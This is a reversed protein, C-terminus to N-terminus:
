GFSIDGVRRFVNGLDYFPVLRWRRSLPYRLEFNFIVLADGGIPVLTPLENSNRPELVGQPGADEFKFGRLTTSGGAFFRESIPLRREPESIVGDHDRDVIRFLQGLGFRASIAITSGGLSEPTYYRQHNAFFKNFSENGGLEHAALWYDASYLRGRTPALANDRSDHSFGASFMGLRIARENRTVEIEPINELNFLKANEFIYRFRFATRESLKRETQVFAVVRNIGFTPTSPGLAEDILGRRRFPRLRDFRNYFASFTTPWKKGWPRWDTLQVQALQDDLSGRLKVSGSILRGFLNNDTLQIEARPGHATSYGLGYFMLLPEAETVRVSVARATEDAGPVQQARVGVERFAGTAYLARETKRLEKPTLPDGEKFDLFRMVSGERTITRGLTEICCAVARAGESVEYILRACARPCVRLDAGVDSEDVSVSVRADLHGRENYFEKIQRAGLRAREDSFFDGRKISSLAIIQPSEITVNGRVVVDTVISRPGKDVNFTVTVGDHGPTVALRPEVRASRYGLDALRDRITDSDDRLRDNSTVGRAFEGLLPFKGFFDVFASRKKTRLGHIVERENLESAGVIRIDKIEHRAGLRVDYIVRLQNLSPAKCDIPECRASVEAFIYGKEQLYNALRAAGLRLQSRSMSERAVPMFERLRDASIEVENPPVMNVRLNGPPLTRRPLGLGGGGALPPISGAGLAFSKRGRFEFVFDSQGTGQLELDGSQLYTGLISYRNSFNYEVTGIQDQESSLNTSYIFTLGRALQRGITLRAAPNKFPRLVPDIQFRNLGLFRQTERGLPKSIFQDALLAGAATFGARTQDAGAILGGETSGTTILSIIESRSLIPESSLSLELSNIPGSLAVHVRYSRINSEAQLQLRPEAFGGPLELFGSTINYRKGRFTLSGGDLTIRGSVEPDNLTGTLNFRASAVTDIQNSRIIFSERAEVTVNLSIPAIAAGSRLRGKFLPGLNLHGREGIEDLSLDSTFEAGTISVRGSLTQGQPTGTLTLNANATARITQWVVEADDASIEFRWEVPRFAALTAGGSIRAAGGGARATFNEITLRNGSFAVRGAGADIAIPSAGSSASIDRLTAVGSVNPDSLSGSIRADIEVEGDFNLGDYPRNFAGLNVRGAISFNIPANDALGLVGGFNLETGQATLRASEIRLRSDGIAVELPTSVNVPTGGVELSVGTLTLAGRLFAITAEGQANLTPGVVRLTGTVRGAISQAIEPAYASLIPGIDFDVLDARIEAPRGPRRWEVSVTLPQRRGAIETTMEVDIRGDPQTRATLNVNGSEKGNITVQRAQATLEIRFDEANDFDGNVQFTADALGTLRVAGLDFAEALRQLGLQEAQGRFQYENTQLDIVGGATFRGQTLSAEVREFRVVQGDFKIIALASEARQGAIVGNVLNLNAEGKPAGPLGTLHAEGSVEGTVLNQQTPIGIAALLTDLNIRDFTIDFRGETAEPSRPTALSFKVSRGEDTTLSGQEFRIEPPSVLLRGKLAGLIEDRLGFSSAQVDGTVTPNELRGTLTGMFSFDGFIQPEYTKLLREVRDGFLGTMNLISQLEEARTSKISFRLDSDGELALKGTATLTSADTRLTFQDFYFVGRQAKATIEGRVPIADPTSTIQGEFRASIEGSILRLNTGPWTVDARGTVTGELLDGRAGLLSFLQSTEAGTFDVRLRSPGDPSLGVILNGTVGGGLADGKFGSLSIQSRNAVFRGTIQGFKVKDWSGDRLSVQGQAERAGSGDLGFAASVDRLMVENFAGNSAKAHGITAQDSTIQARGDVVTGKVNSASAGTLEIEGAIVSRAEVRGSSFTWLPKRRGGTFTGKLDSATATMFEVGELAGSRAQTQASSFTWQGYRQGKGAGSEFTANIDRSSVENFKNQGAGANIIVREVTAQDSTIQARGDIVTGRVNSALAGTLEVEGSIVSRARAQGSSFTWEGKSVDPGFTTEIDRSTVGNFETQGAKVRGVAAQDSTVRARGDVVTGNLKVASAATFEIEGALGSRAQARASSFTWQGERSKGTKDPGFIASIDRLTIENFHNQGAGAKIHILAITAQDSTIRAQGNAVTGKVNSASTTTLEIGESLISRAQAQGISFNWKSNRADLRARDAQADRIKVGNAVLETSSLQGAASWHGSEGELRGDFSAAGKLPLKPAFFPLAEELRARAQMDLQFRLAEWDDLRGSATVEAAPSRLALRDIAAGSKMVRGIFEVADIPTERDNRSLRGAGSALRVSVEPPDGGKIPRAEGTLDRLDSQLDRKRDIYNLAGKTLSGVLSSFDFTIRRRRPPPRRLGKFNSEERENFVVWLDLGDLELRDLVIERSLKLAFPDRVTLSVTARDITAILQDTQLNFLKIEHLTFTRFDRGVELGGIEARLGYAELAKELEIVLFRNFKESRLYLLGLLVTIILLAILGLASYVFLRRRTFRRPPPLLDEPTASM